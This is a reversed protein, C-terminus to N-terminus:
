GRRKRRALQERLKKNEDELRNREQVHEARERLLNEAMDGESGDLLRHLREVAHDSVEPKKRAVGDLLDMWNVTTPYRDSVRGMGVHATVLAQLCLVKKTYLDRLLMTRGLEDELPELDVLNPTRNILHILNLDIQRNSDEAMRLERMQVAMEVADELRVQHQAAFLKILTFSEVLTTTLTRAVPKPVVKTPDPLEDKKKETM